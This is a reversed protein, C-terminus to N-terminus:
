SIERASFELKGKAKYDGGHFIGIRGGIELALHIRWLLTLKAWPIIVRALRFMLSLVGTSM